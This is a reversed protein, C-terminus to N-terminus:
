SGWQNRESGLSGSGLGGSGLDYGQYQDQAQPVPIDLDWAWPDQEMPVVFPMDWGPAAMLDGFAIQPIAYSANTNMGGSMVSSSSPSTGFTAYTTPLPNVPLPSSSPAPAPTYRPNSSHPQPSVSLSYGSTSPPTSKTSNSGPGMMSPPPPLQPLSVQNGPNNTSTHPVRDGSTARVMRDYWTQIKRVRAEYYIFIDREKQGGTDRGVLAGIRLALHRFVNELNLRNRLERTQAECSPERSIIAFKAALTVGFSLQVWECNTLAMESKPPLWLYLDLFSKASELGECLISINLSPHQQLSREFFAVQYLFLKATHFQMFLLHSDSVDTVLYARFQELEARTRLYAAHAEDESSTPASLSEIGDIIRQLQIVHYLDKDTKYQAKERLALCGAEIHQSWPFVNLKDLLKSVTSSLYFLGATARQEESGWSQTAHDLALVDRKRGDSTVKSRLKRRDLRMDVAVSIALAIYQSFFRSRHHYQNWALVVLLGQIYGLSLCDDGGLLVRDSVMYKFRDGLRDQVPLDHFCAVSLLALFLFPKEHRLQSATVHPPIIVFPFHPMMDSKYM